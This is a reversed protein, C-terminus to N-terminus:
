ALSGSRGFVYLARPAPHMVPGPLHQFSRTPAQGVESGRSREAQAMVHHRSHGVGRHVSRGVQLRQVAIAGELGQAECPLGRGLGLGLGLRGLQLAARNARERSGPIRQADAIGPVQQRLRSPRFASGRGASDAGAETNWSSRFLGPTLRFNEWASM